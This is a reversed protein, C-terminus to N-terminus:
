PLLRDLTPRRWFKRQAMTTTSLELLGDRHSLVLRIRNIEGGALAALLPAFMEHELRQIQLLWDAWDTALAAESLSGCYCVTHRAPNELLHAATINPRQAMASLWAPAEATALVPEPACTDGAAARGWPWFSNIASLGRAEREVNAPHEHWLMQVENQLKRYQVARPGAPLWDTLNM